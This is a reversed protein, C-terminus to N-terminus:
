CYQGCKPLHDGRWRPLQMSHRIQCVELPTKALEKIAETTVTPCRFKDVKEIKHTHVNGSMSYNRNKELLDWGQGRSTPYIVVKEQFIEVTIKCNCDNEKVKTIRRKKPSDTPAKKFRSSKQPM